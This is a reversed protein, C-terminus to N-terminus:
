RVLIIDGFSFDFIALRRLSVGFTEEYFSDECGSFLSFRKRYSRVKVFGGSWDYGAEGDAAADWVDGIYIITSRRLPKSNAEQDVLVCMGVQDAVGKIAECSACPFVEEGEELDETGELGGFGRKVLGFGCSAVDGLFCHIEFCSCARKLGEEGAVRGCGGKDARGLGIGEVIAGDGVVLRISVDQGVRIAFHGINAVAEVRSVAFVQVGVVWRLQLLEISGVQFLVQM